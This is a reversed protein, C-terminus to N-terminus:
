QTFSTLGEFIKVVDTDGMLLDDVVAFSGSDADLKKHILVRIAFTIGKHSIFGVNFDATDFGVDPQDHISGAGGDNTVM